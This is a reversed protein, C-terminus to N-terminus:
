SPLCEVNGDQEDTDSTSSTNSSNDTGTGDNDSFNNSEEDGGGGQEDSNRSGSRRRRFITAGHPTQQMVRWLMWIMRNDEHDHFANLSRVRINGLFTKSLGNMNNPEERSPLWVKVDSDLGSSALVPMSPHPELCNVVGKDALLFQVIGESQKDWFFINGCDSGSIVYESRPGFFNVGKITAGNRHGQYTHIAEDGPSESDFLYIDDDNYSALIERGCYNYVSATIHRETGKTKAQFTKMSAGDKPIFRQDYVVVSEDHGSVCFENSKLPNSHISYLPIKKNEKNMVYTVKNPKTARVDHSYVLADEGCSLVIHPQDSLLTLKHSAGRHQGLKRSGRLGDQGLQWLWVQGDRASTVLQLESECSLALFKSQFVNSRHKTVWSTKRRGLAWDWIVVRLDDSASAILNGTPNFGLANVCGDHYEMMSALEFRQAVHLSGYYRQQFQIHGNLKASYGTQRKLIEPLAYWNPPLKPNCIKAYSPPMPQSDVNDTTSEDLEPFEDSTNVASTSSSEYISCDSNNDSPEEATVVPEATERNESNENEKKRTTDVCIFSYNEDATDSKESASSVSDDTTLEDVWTNKRRFHRNKVNAKIKPFEVNKNTESPQHEDPNQNELLSVSTSPQAVVVVDTKINEVDTESVKVKTKTEIENNDNDINNTTINNQETTEVENQEQSKIPTIDTTVDM